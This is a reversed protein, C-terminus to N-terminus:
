REAYLSPDFEDFQITLGDPDCVRLSRGFAEDLVFNEAPLGKARLDMLLADLSGELSFCLKVRGEPPLPEMGHLALKADGFRLEAWGGNVQTRELEFGLAQYFATSRAVDSVFVLPM